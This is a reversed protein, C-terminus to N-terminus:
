YFLRAGRLGGLKSAWHMRINNLIHLTDLSLHSQMEVVVAKTALDIEVKHIDSLALLALVFRNGL